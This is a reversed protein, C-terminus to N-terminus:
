TRKNTKENTKYTKKKKKQLCTRVLYDLSAGFEYDEQRELVPM